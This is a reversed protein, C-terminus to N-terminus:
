ALQKSSIVFYISVTASCASSSPPCLNKTWAFTPLLSTALAALKAQCAPISFFLHQYFVFIVVTESSSSAISPSLVHHFCCSRWLFLCSPAFCYLPHQPDSGPLFYRSFFKVVRSSISFILNSLHHCTTCCFSQLLSQSWPAHARGQSVCMTRVAIFNSSILPEIWSFHSSSSVRKVIYLIATSSTDGPSSLILNTRCFLESSVDHLALILTSKFSTPSSLESRPSHASVMLLSLHVKLM